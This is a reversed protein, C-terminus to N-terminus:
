QAAGKENLATTDDSEAPAMDCRCPGGDMLVFPCRNEHVRAALLRIFRRIM